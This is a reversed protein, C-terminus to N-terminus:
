CEGEMKLVQIYAKSLVYKIAGNPVTRNKNCILTGGDGEWGGGQHFGEMLLLVGPPLLPM